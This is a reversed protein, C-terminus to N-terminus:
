HCWRYDFGRGAPKYRQVKVVIGGRRKCIPYHGGGLFFVVSLITSQNWFLTQDSQSLSFYKTKGSIPTWYRPREAGQREMYCYSQFNM